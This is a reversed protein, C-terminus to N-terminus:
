IGFKGLVRQLLWVMLPLLIATLLLRPTDPHWPWTPLKELVNMEIQLSNMAKNLGDMQAFNREDMYQHLEGIAAKMRQQAEAQLRLKEKLLLRHAGWLPWVLLAGALVILLGTTIGVANSELIGPTSAIWFYQNALAALAARSALGALSYLPQSSLPDIRSSVTYIRDVMALQHIVHYIAAGAILYNLTIISLELITAPLSTYLKMTQVYVPSWFTSAVGWLLFVLSALLTKPASSTTLQYKLQEYSAKSEDLAPRFSALAQQAYRDLYHAAALLYIGWTTYNFHLAQFTGIPYTGDWWKTLTELAFLVLGLGLYYAWYPGPLRGVRDTLRDLWSPPYPRAELVAPAPSDKVPAM